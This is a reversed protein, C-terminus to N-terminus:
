YEGEAQENIQWKGKTVWKRTNTKGMKISSVIPMLFDKLQAVVDSFIHPVFDQQLRKRFAIWQNQKATAFDHEFAVIKSPIGTNRQKFTRSVAEILNNGDFEFQRSLLWIDYFDKMRSNLEGLSVMAEFKEAIASERTYCLMKPAPFDLIVPIKSLIPQPFIVDGFGIDIQMRVIASDLKAKFTIRLGHYESDKKIREITVSKDDFYLGDPPYDLAIIEQIKSLIHEDDNRTRGLLDIDLTTRFNHTDWVKLLLAGKLIFLAKHESISLRYLFREMAYHYLIENFPRNEKKAYNYLKQRISASINKPSKVSM